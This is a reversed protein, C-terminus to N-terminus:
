KWEWIKEIIVDNTDIEAEFVGVVNDLVVLSGTSSTRYFHSGRWKVSGSPTVRGVGYGEFTVVESGGAMMVGRGVGRLVGGSTPGGVFTAMENVQIGNVKGTQTLSTETTPGEVELVRQGTIKGKFEIIQEGLM